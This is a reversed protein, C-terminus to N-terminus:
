PLVATLEAFTEPRSPDSSVYAIRVSQGRFQALVDDPVPLIVDREANPTYVAVGRAMYAPTSQGEGFLQIDGYTSRSGTRNLRAVLLTEGENDSPRAEVREISIDADLDGVRVIIPITLSRVAVLEISIGDQGAGTASSLTRGASMPASMLRLHARYEGPELDATAASIRITQREDPALVLRRPAYRVIDAAFLEDAQAVAADEMSGDLRMRRNEVSVRFAFEEDGKNVVILEASREGRELVVRTPAILLDAQAPSPILIAGAVIAAFLFLSRLSRM